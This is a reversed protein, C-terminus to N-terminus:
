FIVVRDLVVAGRGITFSGSFATYGSNTTFEQDDYGGKITVGKSVGCLMSEVIRESSWLMLMAGDQAIDYAQQVTEYYIGTGKNKAKVVTVPVPSSEGAISSAPSYYAKASLSYLGHGLTSTDWAYIYPTVTLRPLQQNGNVFIDVAVADASAATTVQVTGGVKANVVPATISVTPLVPVTVIESYDSEIKVDNVTIYSTVAFSYSHAPDLGDIVTNPTASQGPVDKQAAGAGNFPPTSSDMQYHVMYGTVRVDDVTNWSLHATYAICANRGTLVLVSVIVLTMIAKNMEVSRKM